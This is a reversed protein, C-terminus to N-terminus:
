GDRQESRRKIREAAKRLRPPLEPICAIKAQIEKHVLQPDRLQDGHLRTGSLPSPQVGHRALCDYFPAMVREIRAGNAPAADPSTPGTAAPANDPPLQDTTPTTPATVTPVEAAPTTTASSDNGGGCGGIAISCAAITVAAALGARADKM